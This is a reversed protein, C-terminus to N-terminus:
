SSLIWSIWLTLYRDFCDGELYKIINSFFLCLDFRLCIISWFILCHWAVNRSHPRSIAPAVSFFRQSHVSSPLAPVLSDPKWTGLQGLIHRAEAWSRAASAADQRLGRICLLWYYYIIKVSKLIKPLKRLQRRLNSQFVKTRNDFPSEFESFINDLRSRHLLTRNRCSLDMPSWGLIRLMDEWYTEKITHQTKWGRVRKSSFVSFVLFGRGFFFSIQIQGQTNFQSTWWNMM